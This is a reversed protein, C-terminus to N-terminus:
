LRSDRLWMIVADEKPHEYFGPRIGESVFGLKEYLRIANENSCRVELTYDTVGIKAGEELLSQLMQYAYGRGRYEPAIMVNTIEGDGVINQIGSVGIVEGDEEVVLYVVNDLALTQKYVNESWPDTFIMQELKAVVPIDQETMRRIIM